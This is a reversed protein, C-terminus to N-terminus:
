VARHQQRFVKPAEGYARRFWRSFHATDAFGCEYAVQTVTRNTNLLLWHGHALRMERWIAAPSQGAHRAFARNLERLSTGLRDALESIGFPRSLNREMVHVSQEVRWNGCVTLAEYPRYPLHHAARHKDVLLSMLGKVARAKGCHEEVLTVALDLAATGGPCTFIRQDSVYVRDTVPRVAPFAAIFERRHDPHVACIRDDLLGAQALVFSGTCLGILSVGAAYARRLYDYSEAPQDLCGPLIGGVVVLYDFRGPDPFLEQPTVEVGCSARVPDLNPGVVSWHCYIQRSRDAEDAAHRLCDIFSAFPLITFNPSLLFGVRIDPTIDPAIGDGPQRNM